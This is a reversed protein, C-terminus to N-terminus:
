QGKIQLQFDRTALIENIALVQVKIDVTRTRVQKDATIPIRRTEFGNKRVSFTADPVEYRLGGITKPLLRLRLNKATSGANTLILKLRVNEDADIFGNNNKPDELTIEISVKPPRKEPLFGSFVGFRFAIVGAIVLVALPLLIKRLKKNRARNESRKKLLTIANQLELAPRYTPRMRLAIDIERQADAFAEIEMYTQGLHYHPAVDNPNAEIIKKLAAEAQLYQRNNLFVLARQLAKDLSVEADVEQSVQSPNEVAVSAVTAAPEDSPEPLTNAPELDPQSPDITKLFSLVPAYTPDIRLASQAAKKAEALDHLGFYSLSQAHYAALYTADLAIAKEFCDVAERYREANYDTMGKQYYTDRLTDCLSVVETANPALRRATLVATEANETDNQALYARCVGVHADIFDADLRLAMQFHTIAETYQKDNLYAEGLRYHGEKIDTTTETM